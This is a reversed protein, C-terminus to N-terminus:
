LGREKIVFEAYAAMFKKVKDRLSEDLLQGKDDFVKGAGSVQMRGGFFPAVGLTRFVPLWAAQSLLTGGQGPTAGMLAFPRGSFVEQMDSGRSLWDITNKLVGPMSNNYEPTVILVGDSAKIRDKLQRVAAPLGDSTELDGNYLPIDAISAIELDFGKPVNEAALHLLATNYSAKRLSGSIGIIRAM